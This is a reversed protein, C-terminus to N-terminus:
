KKENKKQEGKLTEWIECLLPVVEPGFLASKQTVCERFTWIKCDKTEPPAILIVVKKEALESQYILAFKPKASGVAGLSINSEKYFLKAVQPDVDLFKGKLPFDRYREVGPDDIEGLMVAKVSSAIQMSGINQGFVDELSESKKQLMQNVREISLFGPERDEDAHSIGVVTVALILISKNAHM